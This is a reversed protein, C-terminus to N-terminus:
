RWEGQLVFGAWDHPSRWRPDQLMSLQAERLARAAPLGGTLMKKYFRGMLEATAVDDVRWLSAVVRPAGAHMFGRTLGLLGEGRVDKGLATQCASLVVLDADLKLAYVDPLRLFGEQPRGQADVLSLVLGSLEPRESNLLGHTAFHVIRHGALSGDIATRRSADFDVAKLVHGAPAFGAIREAERRTEPLREFGSLGSQTASRLLAVNGVAPPRAQTTGSVRPDDARFVPDALVALTNTAPVRGSAESRLLALVSASPLHVVEHRTILPDFSPGARPIPLAGFPLYQLAGETVVVIRQHTLEDAVPGLIMRGLTAAARRYSAPITGTPTKLKQGTLAEHVARAAADIEARGPLVHSTLSNRTVAWVFSRKEGLAYELLVTDEDLVQRQIEALSLPQSRTLAADRGSTDDAEGAIARAAVLTDLLARARARESAELAEGQRGLRMLIDIYLDYYDRTSGLYAARLDASVIDGRLGEVIALAAEIDARAESLTGKERWARALGFLTAAEAKRDGIGHQLPLAQNYLDVALDMEGQAQRVDGLSRLTDAARQNDEVSRALRLAEGHSELAATFDRQKEHVFGIKQQTIAEAGREGVERSLMLAMGLHQLAAPYNEQMEYVRGINSLVIADHARYRPEPVGNFRAHSDQFYRLATDSDGLLRHIEGVNNLLRGELAIDNLAKAVDMARSFQELADQHRGMREYVVGLGNLASAELNQDRRERIIPIAAELYALAAAYNGTNAAIRSLEWLCRAEGHRVGLVRYRALADSLCEAARGKEGQWEFSWCRGALAEAEGRPNGARRYAEAAQSLRELAAAHEELQLTANGLGQLARAEKLPDGLAQWLAIAEIYTPQAARRGDPTGLLRMQEADFLRDNATIRSAADTAGPTVIDITAEYRGSVPATESGLVVLSYDGGEGAVLAYRESEGITKQDNLDALIEGRPSVLRITVDIGQQTVWAYLHDGAALAIRYTHREGPSCERAVVTGPAAVDVDTQATTTAPGLGLHVVAVALLARARM